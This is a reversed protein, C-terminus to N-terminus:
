ADEPGSVNEVLLGDGSIFLLVQSSENPSPNIERHVTHPPLHFFEGQHLTIASGPDSSHEFRAQGSVVYGYIDHGTHTHWGSVVGPETTALMVTMSGEKFAVQRVIGPTAPGDSLQNQRIVELTGM